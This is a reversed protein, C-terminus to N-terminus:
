KNILKAVFIRNSVCVDWGNVTMNRVMESVWDNNQVSENNYLGVHTGRWITGEASVRTIDKFTNGNDWIWEAHKPFSEVSLIRTFSNDKFPLHNWDGGVYHGYDKFAPNMEVGYGYDLGVFSIEPHEAKLQAVAVGAEAGIDLVHESKRFFQEQGGMRNKLQHFSIVEPGTQSQPFYVFKGHILKLKNPLVRLAFDPIKMGIPTEPFLSMKYKQAGRAQFSNYKNGNIEIEFM